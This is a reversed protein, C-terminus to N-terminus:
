PSLPRDGSIALFTGDASYASVSWTYGPGITPGNGYNEPFEAGGLPISIESGDWAWYATGTDDKVVVFYSDAGEVAEWGLTPRVGVAETPTIQIVPAAGVLLPESQPAISTITATTTTATTAAAQQTAPASTSTTTSSTSPVPETDGPGASCGTAVLVVGAALLLTRHRPGTM